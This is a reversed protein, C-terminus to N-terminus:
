IARRKWEGPKHYNRSYLDPARYSTGYRENVANVLIEVGHEANKQTMSTLFAFSFLSKRSWLAHLLSLAFPRIHYRTKHFSSTHRYAVPHGTKVRLLLTGNMDCLVLFPPKGLFLSRSPSSSIVEELIIEEEKGQHEESFESSHEMSQIGSFFQFQLHLSSKALFPHSSSRIFRQVVELMDLRIRESQKFLGEKRQKQRKKHTQTQTSSKLSSFFPFPSCFPTPMCVCVNRHTYYTTRHMSLTGMAM